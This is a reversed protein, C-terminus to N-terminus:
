TNKSNAEKNENERLFRREAKGLVISIIIALANLAYALPQYVMICIITLFCLVMITTAGTPQIGLKRKVYAVWGLVALAAAWLVDSM